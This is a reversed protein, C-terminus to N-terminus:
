TNNHKTGETKTTHDMKPRHRHGQHCIRVAAASPSSCNCFGTLGEGESAACHHKDGYLPADAHQEGAAHCPDAYRFVFMILKQRFAIPYVQRKNRRTSSPDYVSIALREGIIFGIKPDVDNWITLDSSCVDSSWDGNRM